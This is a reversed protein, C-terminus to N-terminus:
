ARSRLWNSFTKVSKRKEGPRNHIFFAGVNDEPFLEVLEGASIEEQVWQRATYTIGDSRKVADMILNGPMQSIMLPRDLTVGHRAFWDPVENTGLEMLWPLHRLDAPGSIRQSTVLEPTGVVVLDLVILVDADKPLDETRSYRIAVDMGDRELDVIMGTPNLLLTVEPHNTQFDALRPMLWKVAFVPSMTVHLPRAQQHNSLAKVGQAIQRFGAELDRALVKGDETLAVGRGSRTALQAGFFAELAKIQQMVAAHTVNLEEGAKTYSGTEALASFARLANLSPMSRWDM